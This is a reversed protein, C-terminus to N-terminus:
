VIVSGQAQPLICTLHSQLASTVNAVVAKTMWPVHPAIRIDIDSSTIEGTMPFGFAQGTMTYSAGSWAV